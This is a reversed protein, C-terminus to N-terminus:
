PTSAEGQLLASRARAAIGPRARPGPPRVASLVRAARGGDVDAVRRPRGQGGTGRAGAEAPAGGGVAGGVRARGLPYDAYIRAVLEAVTRDGAALGALVQEEREARHAVYERLKAAADTVVPGHGPYITRPACSWCGTCRRRPVRRSRRGAPRHLEDRPRPGRRGTFLAGHAREFFVVHDASHGPTHVAQSRRRRAGLVAARRDSPERGALRWAWLPASRGLEAFAAAGEAHDEHDHTVLVAAVEGAAARVEDHHAPDDPGPDIVISPGDGVVWTNTGELTYVSPNPALVRIARLM